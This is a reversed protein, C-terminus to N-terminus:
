ISGISKDFEFIVKNLSKNRFAPERSLLRVEVRHISTGRSNSKLTCVRAQTVAATMLAAATKRGTTVVAPTQWICVIDDGAATPWRNSMHGNHASGRKSKGVHSLPGRRHFSAMHQLHVSLSAFFRRLKAEKSVYREDVKDPRSM